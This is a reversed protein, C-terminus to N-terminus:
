YMLDIDLGIQFSSERSFVQGNFCKTNTISLHRKRQFIDATERANRYFVIVRKFSSLLLWVFTQCSYFSPWGYWLFLKNPFPFYPNAQKHLIFDTVDQACDHHDPYKSDVHHEYWDNVYHEHKLFTVFVLLSHSTSGCTVGQDIAWTYETRARWFKHVGITLSHVRRDTITRYM